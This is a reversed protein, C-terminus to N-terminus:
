NKSVTTPVHTTTNKPEETSNSSSQSSNSHTTVTSNSITTLVADATGNKSTIGSTCNCPIMTDNVPTILKEDRITAPSLTGVIDYLKPSHTKPVKRTTGNTRWRFFPLITSTKVDHCTCVCKFNLRYVQLGISKCASM